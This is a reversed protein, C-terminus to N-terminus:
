RDTGSASRLFAVRSGDPAVAFSRPAGLTFRQTRAHRKPFSEPETTMGQGYQGHAGKHPQAGGSARTRITIIVLARHTDVQQGSHPNIQGM